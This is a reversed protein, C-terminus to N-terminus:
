KSHLRIFEKIDALLKMDEPSLFEYEDINLLYKPDLKLIQCIRRLQEMNPEQLDREIKSYNSQNMPILKAMDSQSLDLDERADRIKKGIQM